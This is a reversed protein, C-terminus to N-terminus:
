DMRSQSIANVGHERLVSAMASAHASKRGMSQGHEHVWISAGGGYKKGAVSAAKMHRAFSCNGPSIVVWAFGCVGDPVHYTKKSYDLDDGLPTTPSGVVMPAPKSGRGAELGAAQAKRLVEMAGARTFKPSSEVTAKVKGICCQADRDKYLPDFGNREVYRARREEPTFPTRVTRKANRGVRCELSHWMLAYTGSVIRFKFESDPKDSNKGM